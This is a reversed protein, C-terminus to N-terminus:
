IDNRYQLYKLDDSFEGKLRKEKLELSLEIIDYIEKQTLDSISILGKM